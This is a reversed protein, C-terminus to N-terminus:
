RKQGSRLAVPSSALRAATRRVFAAQDRMVFLGHVSSKRQRPGCRASLKVLRGKSELENALRRPSVKFKHAFHRMPVHRKLFTALAGRAVPTIGKGKRRDRRSGLKFFVARAEYFGLQFTAKATLLNLRDEPADAKKPHDQLASKAIWIDKISRVEAGYCKIQGAYIGRLVRVKTAISTTSSFAQGLSVCDTKPSPSEAKACLTRIYADLDERALCSEWESKVNRPIDGGARLVKFVAHPIGLYTAAERTNVSPFASFRLSELAEMDITWLPRNPNSNRRHAPIRGRKLWRLVTYNKWGLFKAADRFQGYKAPPLELKLLEQQRIQVPGEDWNRMAYRLAVHLMFITQERKEGFNKHLRTFLWSFCHQFSQFRKGSRNSALHWTRCFAEFNYPWRSFVQAVRPLADVVDATPLPWASRGDLQLLMRAITVVVRLLLELDMRLLEDVPMGLQFAHLVNERNGSASADVLECIALLEASAMECRMTRFAAGCRCTALGARAHRIRTGCAACHKLMMCGHLPCAVYAKLDWKAPVYGLEEVCQVCVRAKSLGLHRFHVQHGLLQGGERTTRGPLRYGFDAPLPCKDGLIHQLRSYEWGSSIVYSDSGHLLEILTSPSGYGNAEALRTLYARPSEDPHPRPTRM